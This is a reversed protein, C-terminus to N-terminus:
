RAQVGHRALAQELSKLSEGYHKRREIARANIPERVQAASHTVVDRKTRHFDLCAKEFPLGCYDLLRRTETEPAAVLAEYSVDLLADGYLARWHATLREHAAYYHAVDNIDNVFSYQSFFRLRLISLCVDVSSRRMLVIKALPYLAKILGVSWFNLPHKDTAVAAARAEAPLAARYRARWHDANAALRAEADDRTNASTFAQMLAIMEPLEGAGHVASHSSLIQEVLSTGSRPMGVIFILRPSPAAGPASFERENVRRIRAVAEDVGIADYGAGSARASAAIISKAEIIRGFARRFEGKLEDHRALALLAMSRDPPRLERRSLAGDLTASMEDTVTEAAIQTLYDFAVASLPDANIADLLLKKAEAIEGAGIRCRALMTLAAADRPGLAVAAEAAARAADIDLNALYLDSAQRWRAPTPALAAARAASVIAAALHDGAILMDTWQDYSAAATAAPAAREITAMIEQAAAADGAILAAPGAVNFASPHLGLRALARRAAAVGEDARRTRIASEALRVDLLPTEFSQKAAVAAQYAVEPRGSQLSADIFHMAATPDTRAASALDCILPEAEDSRNLLFLVKAMSGKVGVDAPRKRAANRLHSLAEPYAGASAHALGAILSADADAKVALPRASAAAIVGANDGRALLARLEEVISPGKDSMETGPADHARAGDQGERWLEGMDRM